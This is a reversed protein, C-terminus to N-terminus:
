GGARLKKDESRKVVAVGLVGLAIGWMVSLSALAELVAPASKPDALIAYSAAAMQAGWTAAVVYGLTPRWRRTYADEAQAEARITANVEALTAADIEALREIHRNAAALAEPDLAPTAALAAFEEIAAKAKAAVPHDLAGLGLGVARALAPLGLKALLAPIM